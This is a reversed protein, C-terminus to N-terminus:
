RSFTNRPLSIASLLRVMISYVVASPGPPCSSSWSRPSVAVEQLQEFPDELAPPWEAKSAPWEIRKFAEIRLEAIRRELQFDGQKRNLSSLAAIAEIWDGGRELKDIRDLEAEVNVSNM